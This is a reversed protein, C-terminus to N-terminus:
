FVLPSLAVYIGEHVEVEIVWSIVYVENITILKRKSLINNRKLPMRNNIIAMNFFSRTVMRPISKM